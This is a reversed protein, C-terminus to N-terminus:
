RVNTLEEVFREVLKRQTNDDMAQMTAKKGAEVGIEVVYNRLELKAQELMQEVDIRSKEIIAESKARAREEIERATTQGEKVADQIRETAEEEIHSLHDEYERKIREIESKEDEIKRYNGAIEEKREDMFALIPKWAFKTMLWLFAAFGILNAALQAWDVGLANLADQM